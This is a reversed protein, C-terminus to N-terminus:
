FRLVLGGAFEVRQLAEQCFGFPDCVSSSADNLRVPNYRVHVRAGVRPIPFWKVGGGVTWSLKTESNLGSARFFTAGLGGFVFPRLQVDARLLQYVVNGHLQGVTMDFLRASGTSTTMTVNTEQQAWLVEVGIRDSRFYAVQGGWTLGGSAELDQVGPAKHDITSHTTYGLPLLPTIEISQAAAPSALGVALAAAVLLRTM